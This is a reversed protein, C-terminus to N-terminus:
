SATLRGSYDNPLAMASSIRVREYRGSMAPPRHQHHGPITQQGRLRDASLHLGAEPAHQSASALTATSQFTSRQFSSPLPPQIVFLFHRPLVDAFCFLFLARAHLPTFRTSQHHFCEPLDCFVSCTIPQPPPPMSCRRVPESWAQTAGLGVAAERASLGVSQGILHLPGCSRCACQGISGLARHMPDHVWQFQRLEADLFELTRLRTAAGLTAVGCGHGASCATYTQARVGKESMCDRMESGIGSRWTAAFWKRPARVRHGLDIRRGSIWSCSTRALRRSFPLKAGAVPPAVCSCASRFCALASYESSSSRYLFLTPVSRSEPLHRPQVSRCLVANRGPDEFRLAVRCVVLVQNCLELLRRVPREQAPDGLPQAAHDAELPAKPTIQVTSYVVIKCPCPTQLKAMRPRCVIEIMDLMYIYIYVNKDVVRFRPIIGCGRERQGASICGSCGNAVVQWVGRFVQWVEWGM